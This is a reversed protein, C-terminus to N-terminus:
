LLTRQHASRLHRPITFNPRLYLYSQPVSVPFTLFRGLALWPSLGTPTVAFPYSLVVARTRTPPLVLIM